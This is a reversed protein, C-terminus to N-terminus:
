GLQKKVYDVIDPMLKNIEQRVSKAILKRINERAAATLKQELLDAALNDLHEPTLYELAQAIEKAQPPTPATRGLTNMALEAAEKGISDTLSPKELDVESNGEFFDDPLEIGKPKEWDHGDSSKKEM